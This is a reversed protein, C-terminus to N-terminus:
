YKFGKDFDDDFNVFPKNKTDDTRAQAGVAAATHSSSM